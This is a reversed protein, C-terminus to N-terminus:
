ILSFMRSPRPSFVTCFCPDYSLDEPGPKLSLIRSGDLRCQEPLNTMM